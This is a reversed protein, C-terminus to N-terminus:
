VTSRYQISHSVKDFNAPREHQPAADQKCCTADDPAVCVVDVLPRPPEHPQPVVLARHLM